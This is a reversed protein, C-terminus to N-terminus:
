AGIVVISPGKRIWRGSHRGGAMGPALRAITRLDASPLHQRAASVLAQNVATVPDVSPPTSAAKQAATAAIRVFRRAKEFEAQEQDMEGFELELAKSVASGLASGIATGVGPIPIFSGLAGGVFPLAKKAVAKLAGAFPKVVRGVVSGVKKIGKWIKGLFQDMEAESSISMLETALEVEQAESLPSSLEGGGFEGVESTEGYEGHEGTEGYENTEYGFSETEFASERAGQCKQCQCM